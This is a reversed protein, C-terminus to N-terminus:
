CGAPLVGIPNRRTVMTPQKAAIPDNTLIRFGTGDVQMTAIQPSSSWDHITFAITTGDPSLDPTAAATSDRPASGRRCWRHRRDHVHACVQERAPDGPLHRRQRSGTSRLRVARYRGRDRSGVGLGGVKRHRAARQHREALQSWADETLSSRRRSWRSSRGLEAMHVEPPGDPRSRGQTALARVTSPRIGMIQRRRKPATTTSISCSWPPGSARTLQLLLHRIDERIDIEDFPDRHHHRPQSGEHPEARQVRECGRDM